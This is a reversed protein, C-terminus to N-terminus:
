GVKVPLTIACSGCYRARRDHLLMVNEFRGHCRPCNDVDAVVEAKMSRYPSRKMTDATTLVADLVASPDRLPSSFGASRLRGHLERLQERDLGLRYTRNAQTIYTSLKM